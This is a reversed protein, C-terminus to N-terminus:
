YIGHNIETIFNTIRDFKVNIYEDIEQQLGGNFASTLKIHVSYYEQQDRQAYSEPFIAQISNINSGIIIQSSDYFLSISNDKLEFGKLKNDHFILISNGYHLLEENVDEIENFYNTSKSPLGLFSIANSKTSGISISNNIKFGERIASNQSYGKIFLIM